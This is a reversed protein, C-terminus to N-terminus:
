TKACLGTAKDTPAPWGFSKLQRDLYEQLKLSLSMRISNLIQPSVNAFTSPELLVRSEWNRLSPETTSPGSPSKSSSTSRRGNSMWKLSTSPAGARASFTTGSFRSNGPQNQMNVHSASLRGYAVGTSDGTTDDTKRIQNFTCHIRGDPTIHKRTGAVFTTRVTSVQRARALAKAVPHDIGTFIDKTISDKGAATTGILHELGAAELARRLLDANMSQGVPIRVGTQDAIIDYCREEEDKTWQEVKDLRDQNVRVGKRTMRVLIPLLKCEVDWSAEIGQEEIDKEQKRMIQLPQLADDEAYPGVLRAPMMWMDKKPDLGYQRAAERLLTENKGGCNRRKSIHDLSYFDHLEYLLPDAVQVDLFRKVKPMMIGMEWSWDLEYPLNAGVLEGDFEKMQDRLYGLADGEVNDEYSGSINDHGHRFPVYYKPWMSAPSTRDEICFSYGVVYNGPRRVGPGLEQLDTDKTEYDFGIRQAGKWSPLDAMRPPRWTTTKYIEPDHRGGMLTLSGQETSPFFKTSM